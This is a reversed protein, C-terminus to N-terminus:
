FYYLVFPIWALAFLIFPHILRSLIAGSFMYALSFFLLYEKNETILSGFKHFAVYAIFLHALIVFILIYIDRTLFYFPFSFPYYTDSMPSAYEPFGGLWANNWLRHINLVFNMPCPRSFFTRPAQLSYMKRCFYGSFTILFCIFPIIYYLYSKDFPFFFKRQSNLM